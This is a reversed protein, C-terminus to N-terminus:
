IWWGKVVMNITTWTTNVTSYEIKRNSDLAVIVDCCFPVNAVQTRIEVRNYANVNGNERIGMYSNAADDEVIMRLTVAKAGAPIISSLDLDYWGGDTTFDGIQFDYGGYDGRDVYAGISLVNNISNNNMDLNGTSITVNGSTDLVIGDNWTIVGGQAVGSDYQFSLKDNYKSFYFNSGADSSKSANDFYSDFFIGVFDHRWSLIQMVPYNDTITTWQVHPGAVNANAGDLALMAAGIGGHPIALTGIGVKGDAQLVIGYNWTFVNGQAIASDYVFLFKDNTKVIGFNSNADSSRWAGDWYGDFFIEISDHNKVGIQLAPYDDTNVTFQIYPGNPDNGLGELALMAYGIGGHPVVATGLGIKGDSGQIFLANPAGVGEWRFDVDVGGENWVVTDTGAETIDIVDLGGVVVRLRDDTFRLYTDLDGYHAIYETPQVGNVDIRQYRAGDAFFDIYEEAAIVYTDSDADTIRDNLAQAVQLRGYEDYVKM